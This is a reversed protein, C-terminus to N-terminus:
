DPRTISWWATTVCVKDKNKRVIKRKGGVEEGGENAGDDDEDAFKKSTSVRRPPRKFRTTPQIGMEIFAQEQAEASMGIWEAVKAASTRFLPPPLFSDPAAVFLRDFYADPCNSFDLKEFISSGQLQKLDKVLYQSADTTSLTSEDLPSTPSEMAQKTEDNSGNRM